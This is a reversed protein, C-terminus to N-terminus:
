NRRRKFEKERKNKRIEVVHYDRKLRMEDEDERDNYSECVTKIM